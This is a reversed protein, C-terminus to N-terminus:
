NYYFSSVEILSFLEKNLIYIYNLNFDMNGVFRKYRPLKMLLHYYNDHFQKFLKKNIIILKSTIRDLQTANYDIKPINNIHYLDFEIEDFLTKTFLVIKDKKLYNNIYFEDILDDTWIFYDTKLPDNRIIEDIFKLKENSLIYNRICHTYNDFQNNVQEKKDLLRQIDWDIKSYQGFFQHYEKSYIRLNSKNCTLACKSLYINWTEKNTFIVVNFNSTLLSDIVQKKYEYNLEDKYLCTIITFCDM